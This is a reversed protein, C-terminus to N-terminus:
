LFKRLVRKFYFRISRILKFPTHWIRTRPAFPKGIQGGSKGGESAAEDRARM